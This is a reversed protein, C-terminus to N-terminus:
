DHTKGKTHKAAKHKATSGKPNAREWVAQRSIGEARAAEAYSKYGSYPVGRTRHLIFALSHREAYRFVATPTVGLMRATEAQTLGAAACDEYTTLTDM